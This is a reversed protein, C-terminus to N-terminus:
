PCEDGNKRIRKYGKRKNNEDRRRKNENNNRRAWM